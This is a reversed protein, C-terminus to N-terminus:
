SILCQEDNRPFGEPLIPQGTADFQLGSESDIGNQALFAKFREEEQRVDRGAGGGQLAGFEGVIEAPPNGFSQMRQMLEFVREFHKSNVNDTITAKSDKLNQHKEFEQCLQMAVDYQKNYNDYDCPKLIQRNEALWEPYKNCLEKIFYTNM